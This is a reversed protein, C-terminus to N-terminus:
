RSLVWRALNTVEDLDDFRLPEHSEDHGDVCVEPSSTMHEFVRAEAEPNNRYKEAISRFSPGEKDRNVSHCNTCKSKKLLREAAKVDVVSDTALLTGPSLSVLHVILSIVIPRM